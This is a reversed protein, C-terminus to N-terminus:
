VKSFLKKIKKIVIEYVPSGIQLDVIQTECQRCIFAKKIIVGGRIGEDPVQGCFYCRPLLIGKITENKECCVDSM